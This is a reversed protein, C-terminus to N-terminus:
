RPRVPAAPRLDDGPDRAPRPGGIRGHQWTDHGPEETNLAIGPDAAAAVAPAFATHATRGPPPHVPRRAVANLIAAARHAGLGLDPTGVGHTHLEANQVFLRAGTGELRVRRDRGVAWRGADDHEALPDLAALFEPRRPAYGTALVLRRTRVAFREATQRHRFELVFGDGDRRGAVAEAGPMLTVGTRTVGDPFARDDLEARIQALTEASAAKYLRDQGALLTDRVPEALGHFHETYDPTFHELGLKSYEMPEFATSRTLWRLRRGPRHWTRLLDLVVEAGSQGSGLVTVDDAAQIHDRQDLYEASHPAHLGRLAPPTYPETGIGLVLDATLITATAADPKEYVLEFGDRGDPLRTLDVATVREGFRCSPLSAAVARCYAEYERRPVHWREAFYFGFLRGTDRLWALYSHRSTPDVLSVLDALFPVQLAAGEIMMGPHWSFEPKEDLFATRLGAVPEALAALALNFPGVGIGALDVTEPASVASLSVTGPSVPTM